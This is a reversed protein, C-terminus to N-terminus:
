RVGSLNPPTGVVWAVTKVTRLEEMPVMSLYVANVAVYLAITATTGVLLIRPLLKQAEKVEGAVSAVDSWGDYAFLILYMVPALASMLSRPAPVPSFNAATGKALILGLAIIGALALVKLATLAVALGAGTRTGLTNIATLLLLASVGVAQSRWDTGEALSAGCLKLLHESFVMIIGAAAFPKTLLMYTWGFVFSVMGGLGRNLFVYIGGSQPFMAGLEAYTLAGFLSLVGGAAWLSLILAPSGIERAIAPPARFIGGGIIIGVMIASGGWFGIRRPLDKPESM